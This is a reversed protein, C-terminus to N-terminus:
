RREVSAWTPGSKDTMVHRKVSQDERKSVSFGLVELAGQIKEFDDMTMSAFMQKDPESNAGAVSAASAEAM